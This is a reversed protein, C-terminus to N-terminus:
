LMPESRSRFDSQRTLNSSQLQGSFEIDVFVSQNWNSQINLYIYKVICPYAVCIPIHWKDFAQMHEDHNSIRWTDFQSSETISNIREDNEREKITFDKLLCIGISITLVDISYSFVTQLVIICYGITLWYCQCKWYCIWNSNIDNKSSFPLCFISFISQFIVVASIGSHDIIM